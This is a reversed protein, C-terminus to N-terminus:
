DQGLTARGRGLAPRAAAISHEYFTPIKPFHPKGHSYIAKKFHPYKRLILNEPMHRGQGISAVHQLSYNNLQNKSDM